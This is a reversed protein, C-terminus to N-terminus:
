RRKVLLLKDGAVKVESLQAVAQDFFAKDEVWERLSLNGKRTLATLPAKIGNMTASVPVLTIQRDKLEPYGKMVSNLYGRMRMVRAIWSAPGRMEQVPLSNSATFVTDELGIAYHWGTKRLAASSRILYNLDPAGLALTDAATDGFFARLTDVVHAQAEPSEPLVAAGFPKDSLFSRMQKYQMAALLLLIVVLFCPLILLFFMFGPTTGPKDKVGFWPTQAL